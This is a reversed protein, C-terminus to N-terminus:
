MEDESAEVSLAQVLGVNHEKLWEDMMKEVTEPSSLNLARHAIERAEDTRLTRIVRKIQPLFTPSASFTRLGLGVLIPTARPEAAMEGCLSVDIDHRHAAQITRAILSLVAPHLEHYIDAVLDNGRDVALVYQTLDNTGISFFDVKQAFKDAMLAVSPVEVMIGVPIESDYARGEADFEAKVKDLVQYFEDIEELTTIMPLLIRSRGETSARLIARLQDELLGERELLIRMGRWGLFPNHERHAMPLMKDGGLDILRFTVADPAAAQLAEQYIECQKDESLVGSHTLGLIETRFLGIGEARYEELLSLEEKFEVNAQLQCREQDLTEAPLPILEKQEQLVHQYRRQKEEYLALTQETPHVIVRNSFGDLIVTDGDDVKETLDHLGVVAPVGLARAMLAVHSTPGGYDLACGLIDRRSFLIIDAATLKEAVVITNRDIRSLIKGRQLHRILRNQIDRFDNVRERLYENGSAELLKTHKQITKQVAFDANCRENKICGIVEPYLAEDRLMLAQADFIDSSGEGIKEQAIASIKTLDHESRQVAQEFRKIEQDVEDPSLKRRTATFADKAFLYVPGIAVGPAVGVGRYRKEGGSTHITQSKDSINLTM